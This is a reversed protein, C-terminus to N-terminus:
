STHLSSKLLSKPDKVGDRKLKNIPAATNEHGIFCGYFGSM